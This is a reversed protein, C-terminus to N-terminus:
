PVVPFPFDIGSFAPSQSTNARYLTAVFAYLANARVDHANTKIATTNATANVGTNDSSWLTGASYMGNARRFTLRATVRSRQPAIFGGSGGLMGGDSDRYYVRYRSIDNDHSFNSVTYANLALPCYFIVTGTSSGRFVWAGNSLQVKNALWENAPVCSSAPVATTWVDQDNALASNTPSLAALLSILTPALLKSFKDM